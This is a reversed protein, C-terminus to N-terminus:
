RRGGEIGRSLKPFLVETNKNEYIEVCRIVQEGGQGVAELIIRACNVVEQYFIHSPLPTSIIETLMQKAVGFDGVLCYAIALELKMNVRDFSIHKCYAIFSEVSCLPELSNKREEELKVLLRTELEPNNNDLEIVMPNKGDLTIRESYNLSLNPMTPSFLPVVLRYVYFVNKQSTRDFFFGRVVHETPRLIILDRILEFGDLRHCM